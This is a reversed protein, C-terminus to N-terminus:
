FDNEAMKIQMADKKANTIPVELQPSSVRDTAAPIFSAIAAARPGRGGRGGKRGAEGRMAREGRGCDQEMSLERRDDETRGGSRAPGAATHIPRRRWGGARRDGECENSAPKKFSSQMKLMRPRGRLSSFADIEEGRLENLCIIFSLQELRPLPMTAAPRGAAGSAATM